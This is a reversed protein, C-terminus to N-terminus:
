NEQWCFFLRLARLNSFSERFVKLINIEINIKAVYRKMYKKLLMKLITGATLKMITSKLQIRGRM